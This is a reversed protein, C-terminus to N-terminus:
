IRYLAPQYQLIFQFYLYDIGLHLILMQCNILTESHLSSHIIIKILKEYIYKNFGQQMMLKEYIIQLKQIDLLMSVILMIKIFQKHLSMNFQILLKSNYNLIIQPYHNIYLNYIQNCLKYLHNLIHSIYALNKNKLKDIRYKNFHIHLKYDPTNNMINEQMQMFIKNLKNEQTKCILYLNSLNGQKTHQKCM